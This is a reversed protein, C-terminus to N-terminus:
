RAELQATIKPIKEFFSQILRFSKAAVKSIFTWIQESNGFDQTLNIICGSTLFISCHPMAACAGRKMHFARLMRHVGTRATPRDGFRGHPREQLADTRVIFLQLPPAALSAM